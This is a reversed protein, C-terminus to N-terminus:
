VTCFISFASQINLYYPRPRYIFNIRFILNRDVWFKSIELIKKRPTWIQYSPTVATLKLYKLWSFSELNGERYLYPHLVRYIKKWATFIISRNVATFFNFFTSINNCFIAATSKRNWDSYGKLSLRSLNSIILM